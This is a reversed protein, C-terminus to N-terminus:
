SWYMYDESDFNGKGPKKHPKGKMKSECLLVGTIILAILTLGLLVGLAILLPVEGSWDSDSSEPTMETVVVVVELKATAQLGRRDTANVEVTTTKGALDAVSVVSVQGTSSDVKFHSEDSVSYVLGAEDGVDPDSAKVYTVPTNASALSFVSAKYVDPSFQPAENVDEVQVRVLAVASTSPSSTDVAEVDLIYWEQQEKDLATRTTIAGSSNISFLERYTRLKYAINYIGSGASARVEGVVVGEPQNEPLKFHYSSNQFAVTEVVSIIRLNVIVHATSNLPPVGNDKAMATLEVTTEENVDSIASTLTVAGTESNLALYPSSGASFSYSIVANEGIDRDTASLTLLLKGEEADTVLSSTYTSSSFEPRNVDTLSVRITASSQDLDTATAKLVVAGVPSNKMLTVNYNTQDFVPPNDNMDEVTVVVVSGATKLSNNTQAAQISIFIMNSRIEERDFATLVSIVGSNPDIAFNSKYKDPSVAAISYIVTENIGFDGDQAKIAEPFIATFVGIQNEPVSAQYLNHSFYPNMNDFDEVNIVVTATDNWGSDDRATVTFNYKPAVNYNFPKKLIFAGSDTLMFDETDPELSYTIRNYDASIDGDEAKVRLVETDLPHTESVTKEYLKQTFNPSM